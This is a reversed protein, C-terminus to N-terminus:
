DMQEGDPPNNLWNMVAKMQHNDIKWMKQMDRQLLGVCHVQSHDHILLVEFKKPDVTTSSIQKGMFGFGIISIPDSYYFIM